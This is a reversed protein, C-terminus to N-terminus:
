ASGDHRIVAEYTDNTNDPDVPRWKVVTVDRYEYHVVSTAWHFIEDLSSEEADYEIDVVEAGSYLHWEGGQQRVIRLTDPRVSREVRPDTPAVPEEGGQDAISM